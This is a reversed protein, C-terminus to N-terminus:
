YSGSDLIVQSAGQNRTLLQWGQYAIPIFLLLDAVHAIWEIRSIRSVPFAIAGACLVFGVWYPVAKKRLLQVGLVLLSLPFLPGSMFMTINFSLSHIAAEHLLTEKSIGFVEAYIGRMGFNNGSIAGCVAILLGWSAYIPMTHKLKAFLGTLAPIWFVTAVVLLTGGTITYEGQQWYFTSLLFLLPALIMSLGQVRQEASTTTTFTITQM